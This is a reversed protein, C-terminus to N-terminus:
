VTFAANVLAWLPDQIASSITVALPGLTETLKDRLSPTSSINFTGPSSPRSTTPKPTEKHEQLTKVLNPGLSHVQVPEIVQKIILLKGPYPGPWNIHLQFGWTLGSSWRNGKEGM